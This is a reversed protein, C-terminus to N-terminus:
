VVVMMSETAGDGTKGERGTVPIKPRNAIIRFDFFSKENRIEDANISNGATENCM